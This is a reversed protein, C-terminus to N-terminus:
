TEEIELIQVTQHNQLQLSIQQALPVDIRQGESGEDLEGVKSHSSVVEAGYWLAKGHWQQYSAISRNIKSRIKEDGVLIDTVAVRKVYFDLVCHERSPHFVKAM